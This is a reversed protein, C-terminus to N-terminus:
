SPRPAGSGEGPWGQKAEFVYIHGRWIASGVFTHGKKGQITGTFAIANGINFMVNDGSINGTVEIIRGQMPDPRISTSVYTGSIIGNNINLRLLGSYPYAQSHLPAFAAVYEVSGAPETVAAAAQSVATVCGFVTLALM